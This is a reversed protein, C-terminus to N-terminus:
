QLRVIVLQSPEARMIRERHGVDWSYLVSVGCPYM